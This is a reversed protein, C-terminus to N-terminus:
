VGTPSLFVHTSQRLRLPLLILPFPCFCLAL